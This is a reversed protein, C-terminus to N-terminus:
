ETWSTRSFSSMWHALDLFSSTDQCPSVAAQQFAGKTYTGGGRYAIGPIETGLLACKHQKKRGPSASAPAPPSIYDVRAGVNSRSSFAVIAVRTASPVVPFDSLLKKVFRLESRFNAQGVSSSEDVLFVLELRGSRERLRRVQRKFARGLREVRGDAVEPLQSPTWCSGLWLPAAVLLLLVRLM